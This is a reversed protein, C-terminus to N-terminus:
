LGRPGLSKSVVSRSVVKWWLHGMAGLTACSTQIPPHGPTGSRVWAAGRSPLLNGTSTHVHTIFLAMPLRAWSGNGGDRGFSGLQLAAGSPAADKLCSRGGRGARPPLTEPARCPARRQGLLPRRGLPEWSRTPGWAGREWCHEWSEGSEEVEAMAKLGWSLTCSSFSIAVWELIRAQLIGPISSGPSTGDM